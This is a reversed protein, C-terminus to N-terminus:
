VAQVGRFHEDKSEARHTEPVTAFGKASPVKFLARYDRAHPGSRTFFERANNIVGRNFPNALVVGTSSQGLRTSTLYAYRRWNLQENVTINAAINQVHQKTMLALAGLALVGWLLVMLVLLHSSVLGPVEIWADMWSLSETAPASRAAHRAVLTEYVVILALAVYGVLVTTHVLLFAVFLRHNGYGVCRNIWTCHHDLRAICVGCKACHKSRLPKAVLCTRCHTTPDLPIGQAADALLQVVDSHYTAVIGPDTPCVFALRLWLAVLAVHLVLVIVLFPAYAAAISAYAADAWLAVHFLTFLSVWAIWIGMAIEPQPRLLSALKAVLTTKALPAKLASADPRKLAVAPAVSADRKSPHLADPSKKVTGHSHGRGHRFGALSKALVLAIVPLALWWPLVYSTALVLFMAAGYFLAVWPRTQKFESPSTQYLAITLAVPRGLCIIALLRVDNASQEGSLLDVLWAASSRQAVDLCTTGDANPRNPDYGRKLLYQM